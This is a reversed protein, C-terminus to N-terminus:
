RLTGPSLQAEATMMAMGEGPWGADIMRARLNCIESSKSVLGLTVPPAPFGWGFSILSIVVNAISQSLLMVEKAESLSAWAALIAPASYKLLSSSSAFSASDQGTAPVWPRPLELSISSQFLRGPTVGTLFNLSRWVARIRIQCAAWARVAGSVVVSALRPACARWSAGPTPRVGLFAVLPPFRAVDRSPPFFPLGEFALEPLFVDAAR